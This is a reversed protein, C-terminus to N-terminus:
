FPLEDSEPGCQPRRPLSPLKRLPDMLQGHIDELQLEVNTLQFLVDNLGVDFLQAAAESLTSRAMRVQGALRVLQVDRYM